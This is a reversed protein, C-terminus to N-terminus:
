SANLLGPINVRFEMEFGALTGETELAIAGDVIFTDCVGGLLEGRRFSWYLYSWIAWIDEIVENASAEIDAATPVNGKEDLVPVCDRAVTVLFGLLNVRGTSHRKGQGLTTAIATNAEGIRVLSITLQECDLVPRGPSVYVREIPGAVTDGVAAACVMLLEDAYQMPTQITSPVVSM